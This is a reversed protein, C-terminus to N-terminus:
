YNTQCTSNLIYVYKDSILELLIIAPNNESTSTDGAKWEIEKLKIDGVICLGSCGYSCAKEVLQGLQLVNQHTSKHSRYIHM